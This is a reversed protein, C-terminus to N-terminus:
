FGFRWRVHVERLAVLTGGLPRVTEVQDLSDQEIITKSGIVRLGIREGSGDYRRSSVVEAMDAAGHDLEEDM